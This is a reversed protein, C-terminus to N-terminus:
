YTLTNSLLQSLTQLVPTQYLYNKTNYPINYTLIYTFTQNMIHHQSIKTYIYIYKTYTM